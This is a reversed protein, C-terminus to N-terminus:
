ANVRRWNQPIGSVSGSPWNADANTYFTGTSSVRELWDYTYSSIDGESITSPMKCRVKNLSSCGRFMSSYCGTGLTTASLAPAETLSTCGSFMRQYCSDILTTAPLAPAKTLSTCGSFMQDYCNSALTTAPLAPAKTLSTCDYFMQYYCESALTTAPLEPAETLSTCGWFMGIYCNDALTTAPLAPAKTLSTCDNFMADYCHSAQFAGDYYNGSLITAPLEPAKTLSTCGSFMGKYCYKARSITTAPLAPAETLSTCGRFMGSYCYQALTTAPLAPAETLSTCGSFMSDYCNDALTTVPLEPAKTLSTCGAFVGSYCYQALTTAPLAPAETLSTCGNFMVSYCYQALTTAPLVPAKTLSTCGDFLSKFAYNVVSEYTAFDNTRLMSMVNHWAEIRGEMMFYFYATYSQDTTRDAKARFSVEDGINLTIATNITYDTWTNGGDSSTQFAGSPSNRKTLKVTSGDQTAKFTLPKTIDDVTPASENVRNWGIPIGSVGSSWNADANTYFTGTSSVNYLWSATYTQIDSSSYSSPMQCRVENLSRCGDFMNQYCNNALTTAPLAPAKTLSTCGKFMNLYCYQALTTAPLEPAKTLSTCGNFMQSYCREVLTTAPLVPAKTLSTCDMFIKYFASRIATNDTAFDNASYLSMVNHWAEIKGTMTFYFYNSSSQGSTRDNKARFSVADSTNLAISTGLIYDEWTNGGDRSTQFAGDPSGKATLRVSGDQTARFMLPKAIDDFAPAEENVRRWGEPIGSKGSPWNADANTYFTGTSSVNYLWNSAYLSIQSSSYSSPIKCRVENLSTCGNFMSNYCNQTLTTEPLAPAKTLSTCGNFMGNYCYNALTTATFEHAKTLSTCGGFMYQYCNNALTTAPLAPAETLSTCGYFMSSYCYDALTTAPLAPAKTLSTCGNFLYNYCYNALTTAPLAPAKTLSTCGNFMSLYCRTVLTTAPLKPAKTLSTCGQFMNSYCIEALTTAPLEPAKTLSTCDYFMNSYCSKALTTAPLAPAKVLSTCGNFLKHFAYNVVTNYTAFDNTRYLSMVNHSAEIKGTMQFGFYNQQNQDTTRDAKARFSVEEDTNITINTGITYDTWTNGGDRSTQFAGSPTGNKTLTVTSGDQTAKFTLPKTIDNVAPVRNWGTPIGNTGSPWDADKNTYFTGTSSVDKLWQEMSANSGDGTYTPIDEESITSPMYCNVENLSSCGYFMSTYCSNALTTARLEPAKVLSTCNSFMWFYCYEALTTVPLVPANVLSTCGNFMGAYCYTTLKTAPLEPAETLSTCGNFMDRYCQPTLTTAPLIPAKTLSTCDKFMYYFAYHIPIEHVTFDANTMSMVNHWAEIKGTMEFYFYDYFNQASTRDVKARFSMEDGTNLTIATDLPYDSWAKGGNFSVQFDGVPRGKKTLKVTSGNQTARFTLPKTIDDVAPAREPVTFSYVENGARDEFSLKRTNKDFTANYILAM